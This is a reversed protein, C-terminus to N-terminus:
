AVPAQFAWRPTGITAEAKPLLIFISLVALAQPAFLTSHKNKM